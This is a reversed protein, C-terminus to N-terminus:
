CKEKKLRKWEQTMLRKTEEIKFELLMEFMEDQDLKYMKCLKKLSKLPPYSLGREWNSVFQATSYGLSYAVKGQSLGNEERAKKLILGLKEESMAAEKLKSRLL